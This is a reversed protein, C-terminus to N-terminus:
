EGPQADHFGYRTFWESKLIPNNVINAFGNTITYHAKCQIRHHLSPAITLPEKSIISWEGKKIPIAINQGCGCACLHSATKHKESYYLVGSELTEPIFEVEVLKFPIKSITKM